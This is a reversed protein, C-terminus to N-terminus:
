RQAFLSLAVIAIIIAGFLGTAWKYRIINRHHIIGNEQMAAMYNSLLQALARELPNNRVAEDVGDWNAKLAMSYSRPSLILLLLVVVITYISVIAVVGAKYWVPQNERLLSLQLVGFLTLILGSNSFLAVAKNALVEVANLDRAYMEKIEQLALADTASDYSNSEVPSQRHTRLCPFFVLLAGLFAGLFGGTAMFLSNLSIVSPSRGGITISIMELFTAVLRRPAGFFSRFM